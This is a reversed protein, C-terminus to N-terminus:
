TVCATPTGRARTCPCVYGIAIFASAKSICFRIKRISSLIATEVTDVSVAKTLAVVIVRLPVCSCIVYIPRCTFGLRRFDAHRSTPLVSRTVLYYAPFLTIYCMRAPTGWARTCPCVFGIPIFAYAKSIGFRIKRISSLIAEDVTDVSIAKTLAVVIGRIPDCPCIPNLILKM